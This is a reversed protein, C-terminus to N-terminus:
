ILSDATLLDIAKPLDNKNLYLAGTVKEPPFGLETMKKYAACFAKVKEEDDGFATLALVAEQREYGQNTYKVVTAEWEGSFGQAILGESDVAENELLDIVGESERLLGKELELDEFPPQPHFVEQFEPVTVPATTRYQQDIVVNVGLGHM